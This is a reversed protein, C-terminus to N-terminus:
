SASVLHRMQQGNASNHGPFSEVYENGSKRCQSLKRPPQRNGPIERAIRIFRCFKSGAYGLVPKGASDCRNAGYRGFTKGCEKVVGIQENEGGAELSISHGVGLCQRVTKGTIPVVAPAIGSVTGCSAPKSTVGPSTAASALARRLTIASASRRRRRDSAANAAARVNGVQCCDPLSRQRRVPCARM